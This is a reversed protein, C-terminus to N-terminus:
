PVIDERKEEKPTETEDVSIPKGTLTLFVDELSGSKMRIDLIRRGNMGIVRQLIEGTVTGIRLGRGVIWDDRIRFGKLGELIQPPVPESVRIEVSEECYKEILDKPRGVEIIRGDDIVAVRECLAEAEDIYHTTLLITTGDRNLGRLYEWLEHRQEVDVGATPEDLILIKPKSMLARAIVLRKQMGGSLRYFPSQAKDSLRFQELLESARAKAFSRPYGYFGAQFELTKRISFFRDINIEQPSFGLHSKADLRDPGVPDGLVSVRGEQPKVLGMISNILTTKGAGNPGLLGFFEGEPIQLDVGRLAQVKGYSKKLSHIEIAASPSMKKSILLSPLFIL